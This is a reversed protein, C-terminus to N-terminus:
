TKEIGFDREVSEKPRAGDQMITGKLNFAPSCFCYLELTEKNSLNEISHWSGEPIYINDGAKVEQTEHNISMLGKGKTLIYWEKFTHKHTFLKVKPPLIAYAVSGEKTKTTPIGFTETIQCGDMATFYEGKEINKVEM